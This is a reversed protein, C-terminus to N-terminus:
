PWWRAVDLIAQVIEDVDAGHTNRDIWWAAGAILDM